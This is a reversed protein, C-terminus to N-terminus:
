YAEHNMHVIHRVVKCNLSNQVRKKAIKNLGFNESTFVHKQDTPYRGISDAIGIQNRDSNGVKKSNKLKALSNSPIGETTVCADRVRCYHISNSKEKSSFKTRFLQDVLFSESSTQQQWNGAM